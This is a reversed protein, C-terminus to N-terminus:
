INEAFKLHIESSNARNIHLKWWIRFIESIKLHHKIDMGKCVIMPDSGSTHGLCRQQRRTLGGGGQGDQGGGLAAAERPGM